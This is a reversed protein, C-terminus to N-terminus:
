AAKAVINPTAEASKPVDELQSSNSIIPGQQPILRRSLQKGWNNTPREVAVYLVTSLVITTTYTALFLSWGDTLYPMLFLAIPFHTLYVSYSITGLFLLPRNNLLYALRPYHEKEFLAILLFTTLSLVIGRAPGGLIYNAVCVAVCAPLHRKFTKHIWSNPQNRVQFASVGLLFYPGYSTPFWKAFLGPEDSVVAYAGAKTLAAAAFVLGWAYKAQRPTRTFAILWPLSLYWFLEIPITWEVGLITNAIKPTFCSLWSTHLLYNSWSIGTEFRESWYNPALLGAITLISVLSIVLWYLPAIRFFRRVFFEPYSKATAVTAAISFGSIVFFIQVGYKGGETINQGIGGFGALAGTHIVVVMTAAIARLCTIFDTSGYTRILNM